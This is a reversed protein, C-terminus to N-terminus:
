TAVGPELALADERAIRRALLKPAGDLTIRITEVNCQEFWTVFDPDAIVPAGGRIVARISKREAGLLADYPDGDDRLIVCDARCGVDLCGRDDLRLINAADTTVLRLLDRPSLHSNSAAVRLEDLLDRSGTLRSDSGLALRGAAALRMPDLTGGLLEINSAPCWVVSAGVALVRDIDCTTLGAGHVLVTNPALCGMKDLCALEARAVDDLGEALHIIWPQDSPTARFSEVVPPGYRSVGLGLSHSWGFERVVDVPFNPDSHTEHLPDHHAVTTAGCLVNKFGGQWHRTASPVAVAATVRAVSRYAEFADIWEYSNSFPADHPLPPVNNLQLHDHANILGPFVVHDRLDVTFGSSGAAVRGGEFALTERRTRDCEVIRANELIM